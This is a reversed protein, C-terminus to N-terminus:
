RNAGSAPAPAAKPADKVPEVRAVVAEKKACSMGEASKVGACPMTDATNAAPTPATASKTDATEHKACCPKDCGAAEGTAARATSDAADASRAHQDCALATSAATIAVVIAAASIGMWLRVTM